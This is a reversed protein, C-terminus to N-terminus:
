RRRLFAFSAGVFLVVVAAAGFWFLMLGHFEQPIEDRLMVALGTIVLLPYGAYVWIYLGHEELDRRLVVTEVVAAIIFIGLMIENIDM